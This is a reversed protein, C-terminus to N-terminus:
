CAAGVAGDELMATLPVLCEGDAEALASALGGSFAGAEDEFFLREERFWRAAM